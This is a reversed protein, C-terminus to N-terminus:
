KYYIKFSRKYGQHVKYRDSFVFNRSKLFDAIMKEFNPIYKENSNDQFHHIYREPEINLKEEDWNVSVQVETYSNDAESKKKYRKPYKFNEFFYKNLLIDAITIEGEHLWGLHDNDEFILIPEKEIREYVAQKLLKNIAEKGFKEETLKTSYIYYCEGTSYTGFCNGSWTGAFSINLKDLLAKLESSAPFDSGNPGPTNIYFKNITKFDTVARISDRKCQEVSFKLIQDRRKKYEIIKLSDLSNEKSINQAFITIQFLFVFSFIFLRM